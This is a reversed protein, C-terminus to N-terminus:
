HPAWFWFLLPTQGDVVSQLSLTTGTHMDIMQLDPVDGPGATVANDTVASDTGAAESPDAATASTTPPEELEAPAEPDTSESVSVDVDLGCAATVLAVAAVSVLVRPKM